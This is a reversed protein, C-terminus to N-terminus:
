DWGFEVLAVFKAEEDVRAVGDDSDFGGLFLADLLEKKLDAGLEFNGDIVPADGFAERTEMTLGEIVGVIGLLGEGVDSEDVAVCDKEELVEGAVALVVFDAAAHTFECFIETGRTAGDYDGGGCDLQRAFEFVVGDREFKAEGFEFLKEGADALSQGVEIAFIVDGDREVGHAHLLGRLGESAERFFFGKPSKAHADKRAAFSIGADEFGEEFGFAIGEAAFAKEFGDAAIRREGVDGAELM